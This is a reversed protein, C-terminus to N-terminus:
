ICDRSRYLVLVTLSLQFPSQLSLELPRSVTLLKFPHFRSPRVLPNLEDPRRRAPPPANCNVHSSGACFTCLRPGAGAEPTSPPSVEGELLTAAVRRESGWPRAPNTARVERNPHRSAATGVPRRAVTVTLLGFGECSPFIADRPTCHIPLGGSGDQFVSWPTWCTRLDLPSSFGSAFHFHAPM